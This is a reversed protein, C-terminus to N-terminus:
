AQIAERSRLVQLIKGRGVVRPPENVEFPADPKLLHRACEPALFTIRAVCEEGPLVREQGELTIVADYYSTPDAPFSVSPRYGSWVPTKRGGEDTPLFYITARIDDVNRM